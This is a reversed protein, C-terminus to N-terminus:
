ERYEYMKTPYLLSPHTGFTVVIFTDGEKTLQYIDHNVRVGDSYGVFYIKEVYPSHKERYEYIKEEIKYNVTYTVVKFEGRKVSNIYASNASTAMHISIAIFFLPSACVIGVFGCILVTWFLKLGENVTQSIIFIGLPVTILSLIGFFILPILSAGENRRLLENKIDEKTIINKSQGYM